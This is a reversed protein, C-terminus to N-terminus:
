FMVERTGLQEARERETERTGQCYGLDPRM